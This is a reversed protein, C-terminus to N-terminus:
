SVLALWCGSHLQPTSHSHTARKSSVAVSRATGARRTLTRRPGAGSNDRASQSTRLPLRASPGLWVSQHWARSDRSAVARRPSGRVRWRRAMYLVAVGCGYGSQHQGLRQNIKCKEQTYYTIYENKNHKIYAQIKDISSVTVLLLSCSYVSTTKLVQTCYRFHILLSRVINRHGM